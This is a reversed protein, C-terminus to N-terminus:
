GGGYRGKTDNYLDQIEQATLARNYVSVEGIMPSPYRNLVEKGVLVSSTNGTPFTSTGTAKLLGNLYFRSSTADLVVVVDAWVDLTPPTMSVQPGGSVYLSIDSINEQWLMWGGSNYAKDIIGGTEHTIFKLWIAVSFPGTVNLAAQNGCDLYDDTGDFSMGGQGTPTAGYRTVTHGYVDDSLFVDGSKNWLPLYLVLSPDLAWKPKPQVTSVPRFAVREALITSM